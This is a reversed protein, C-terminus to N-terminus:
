REQGNRRNRREAFCAGTGLGILEEQARTLTALLGEEAPQNSVLRVSLRDIV